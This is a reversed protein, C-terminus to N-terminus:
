AQAVLAATPAHNIAGDHTLLTGKIIEDNLDLKLEGGKAFLMVLSLVNRSFLTSADYPLTAPLNAEGIIKVGHKVVTKGAESLECNGGQEVALDV